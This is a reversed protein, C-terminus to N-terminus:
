IKAKMLANNKDILEQVYLNVRAECQERMGIDAELDEIQSRM